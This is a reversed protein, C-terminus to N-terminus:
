GHLFSKKPLDVVDAWKTPDDSNIRMGLVSWNRMRAKWRAPYERAPCAIDSWVDCIVANADWNAFNVPFDGNGDCAQNIVVFVHDAAPYCVFDFNLAHVDGLAMLENLHWAVGCSLENCNGYGSALALAGYYIINKPSRQGQSQPNNHNGRLLNVATDVAKIELIRNTQQLPTRTIGFREANPPIKNASHYFPVRQKVAEKISIAAELPTM